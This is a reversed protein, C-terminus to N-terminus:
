RASWCRGSAPYPGRWAGREAGGDRDSRRAPHGHRAGRRLRGRAARRGRRGAGDRIVRRSRPATPCRSAAAAATRTSRRHRAHRGLITSRRRRLADSLRKLVVVGCGEGRCTATPPPTSRRAAATPPWCARRAVARRQARARADPQRRRGARPRVRRGRLSQCALHVAVLSSSCATDVALSPGQLGLIYSLRGAAVSLANGTGAYADLSSRVDATSRCAATTTPTSGSSSARASGELRAPSQGAHELAEWCIELLLRQQPDMSVAERPSIGFFEADFQDVPCDLFAAQRVYTKGPVDPDPDYLADVDWRERPVERVADKGDRLLRWFAEPDNAGGPFRCGLGVVAIPEEQAPRRTADAAPTDAPELGLVERLLYGALREITPHDFALTSPLSQGLRAELLGKLEVAMLSDMGMDFFGRRPPPPEELRLVQAIHTQLHAVLLEHRRGPPAERLQRLFEADAAAQEDRKPGASAGEASGTTDHDGPGAAGDTAPPSSATPAQGNPYWEIWFRRRQFPYTPLALRRAAPRRRARGLGGRGGAAYLQALSDLM